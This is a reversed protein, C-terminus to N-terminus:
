TPSGIIIDGDHYDYYKKAPISLFRLNKGAHYPLYFWTRGYYARDVYAPTKEFTVGITRISTAAEMMM